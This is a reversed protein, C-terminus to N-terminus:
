LRTGSNSSYPMAKRASLSQYVLNIQYFLSTRRGQCERSAIENRLTLRHLWGMTMTKSLTWSLLPTTGRGSTGEKTPVETACACAFAFLQRMKWILWERTMATADDTRTDTAKWQKQSDLKHNQKKGHSQSQKETGTINYLDCIISWLDTVSTMQTKKKKKSIMMLQILWRIVANM